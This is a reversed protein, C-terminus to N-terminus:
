LKMFMYLMHKCPLSCHIAQGEWIDGEGVKWKWKYVTKVFSTTAILHNRFLSDGSLCTGFDDQMHKYSIWPVKRSKCTSLMLSILSRHTRYFSPLLFCKMLSRLPIWSYTVMQGERPYFIRSSVCDRMRIGSCPSSLFVDDPLLCEGFWHMSYLLKCFNPFRFIFISLSFSSILETSLNQKNRIIDEEEMM